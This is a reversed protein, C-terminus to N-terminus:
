YLESQKQEAAHNGTTNSLTRKKIIHLHNELINKM